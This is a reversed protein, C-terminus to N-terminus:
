FGFLLKRGITAGAGTGLISMLTVWVSLALSTDNEETTRHIPRLLVDSKDPGGLVGTQPLNGIVAVTYSATRNIDDDKVTVDNRLLQGPYASPDVSVRYQVVWTADENLTGIKWTLVGNANSDANGTDLVFVGGPLRDTVTLGSLREDGTNEVTVTYEVFGGPFVEGTNAEKRVSLDGGTTDDDDDDDDDEVRTSDTAERDFVRATNRITGEADEDVEVDITLVKTEMPAFTLNWTVIRGSRQANHSAELFHLDTDLTDTVVVNQVTVNSNNRVTINYTLEEEPEATSQGDTKSITFDQAGSPFQKNRFIVSACNGTTVQVTGNTPTVSQLLWGSSTTEIVSHIGPTVSDFRAHGNATNVATRSGDLTFTFPPVNYIANGYQDVTEKIIDICGVNTSSTSSSADSSISSVSSVSSSSPCPIQTIVSDSVNNGVNSEPTTTSIIALNAHSGCTMNSPVDFSVTFHHQAGAVLPGVNCLVSTASNQTCTANTSGIFQFGAPISEYITVSNATATSPDVANKAIFDYTYPRGPVAKGTGTKTLTVDAFGTASSVSSSLSSSVPISSVSSDVSSTSSSQVTSSSSSSIISTMRNKFTVTACGNEPVIIVGNPPTVLQQMWGNPVSETVMHAGTTVQEFRTNGASDNATTRGDDLTFLFPPVNDIRYGYPDFVEKQVDICGM